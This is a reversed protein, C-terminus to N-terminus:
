FRARFKLSHFLADVQASAVLTSVYKTEVAGWELDDRWQRMHGGGITEGTNSDTVTWSTLTNCFMDEKGFEVVEM